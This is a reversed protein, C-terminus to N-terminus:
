LHARLLAQSSWRLAWSHILFRQLSIELLLLVSVARFLLFLSHRILRRHHRPVHLSPFGGLINLSIHSHRVAPRLSRDVNSIRSHRVRVVLPRDLLSSPDFGEFFALLSGFLHEGVSGARPHDFLLLVNDRGLVESGEFLEFLFVVLELESVPVRDLSAIRDPQVLELPTEAALSVLPQREFHNVSRLESFLIFEALPLSLKRLILGHDLQMCVHYLVSHHAESVRHDTLKLM